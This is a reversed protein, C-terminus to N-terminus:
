INHRALMWPDLEKPSQLLVQSYTPQKPTVTLTHNITQPNTVSQPQTRANNATQMICITAQAMDELQLDLKTRANAVLQGLKTTFNNLETNFGDHYNQIAAM